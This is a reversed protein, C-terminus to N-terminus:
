GEIGFLKFDISYVLSLNASARSSSIDVLGHKMGVRAASVALTIM